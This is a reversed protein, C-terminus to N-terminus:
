WKTQPREPESKVRKRPADDEDSDQTLDVVNDTGTADEDSTDSVTITARAEGNMGALQEPTSARRTHLIDRTHAPRPGFGGRQRGRAMGGRRADRKERNYERPGNEAGRPNWSRDPLSERSPFQPGPAQFSFQPPPQRSRDNDRDAAAGKFVYGEPRPDYQRPPPVQRFAPSPSRPHRRPREPRSNPIYRDTPPHKADSDFRRWPPDRAVPSRERRFHSRRNDGM